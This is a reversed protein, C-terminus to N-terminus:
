LCMSVLIYQMKNRFHRSVSPQRATTLLFLQRELFYCFLISVAMRVNEQRKPGDQQKEGLSVVAVQGIGDLNYFIRTDGLKKFNSTALQRQILDRTQQSVHQTTLLPEKASYAGIVLSDFGQKNSFFRHPSPIKAAKILSKRTLLLM